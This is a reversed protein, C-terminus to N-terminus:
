SARVSAIIQGARDARLEGETGRDALIALVLLANRPGTFAFTYVSYSTTTCGPAPPQWSGTAEVRQGTLGSATTVAAPAGPNGGTADSYGGEASIKAVRTAAAALDSGDTRTLFVLTRYASGACYDNGETAKGHGIVSGDTGTQATIEAPDAITWGAPVDYSIGLTPAVVTTSGPKPAGPKAPGTASPGGPSDTASATSSGSSDQSLTYAAFCGALVIVAALAGLIYPTRRGAAAPLQENGPIPQQGAYNPVPHQGTAYASHQGTSYPSRQGTTYQPQQGTVYPSHQGTTYQPQQGTVYHPHQGTAYQPVQGTSYRPLRGTDYQPQYGPPLETAFGPYEASRQAEEAAHGWDQQGADPYSWGPPNAWHDNNDTM